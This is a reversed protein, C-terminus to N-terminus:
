DLTPHRHRLYDFLGEVQARSYGTGIMAEIEAGDIREAHHRALSAFRRLRELRADALPRPLRLGLAWEVFRGLRSASDIERSADIREALGIVRLETPTFLSADIAAPARAEGDLPTFGMYAM